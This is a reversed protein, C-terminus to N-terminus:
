GFLKNYTDKRILKSQFKPLEFCFVENVRKKYFSVPKKAVFVKVNLTKM